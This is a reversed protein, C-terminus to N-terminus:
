STRLGSAHLQSAAPNGSIRRLIDSGNLHFLCTLQVV